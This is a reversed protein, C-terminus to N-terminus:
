FQGPWSKVEMQALTAQKPISQVIYMAMSNITVSRVVQPAWQEKWLITITLTSRSLGQIHMKKVKEMPGERFEEKPILTSLLLSM